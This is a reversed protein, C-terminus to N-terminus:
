KKQNQYEEEIKNLVDPDLEILQCIHLADQPPPTEADALVLTYDMYKAIKKIDAKGQKRIKDIEAFRLGVVQYHKFKPSVVQDYHTTMVSISMVEALYAAVARVITAGEDPNTGRAFEDLAVFLFETKLRQIIENFHMIEAGFTSLGQSVNQMDGSILVVGDFLPIEAAAAFVFFGLQCLINNLVMTKIAVSKGGMNAGTIMTMGSALTISTETLNEGRKALADEVYPNFMEKLIVIPKDSIKPRTAGYELALVAKAILLDLQGIAEMNDYFVRTHLRLQESLMQMVKTEEAVEKATLELREKMLTEKQGLELQIARELKLKERRIEGLLPSHIEDISFPAIRKYEPDLINLVKEMSKLSIGILKIKNDTEQFLQLLKEFTLLFGKMEFLEVEHLASQECKKVIGSINKLQMLQRRIEDLSHREQEAFAIMKEMNDFCDNIIAQGAIGVPAMQKKQEIGYPSDPTLKNLVFTLGIEEKQTADLDFM